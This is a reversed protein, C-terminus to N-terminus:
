RNGDLLVESIMGTRASPRHDQGLRQYAHRTGDLPVSSFAWAWRPSRNEVSGATSSPLKKTMHVAGNLIPHGEPQLPSICAARKDLARQRAEAVGGKRSKERSIESARGWNPTSAGEILPKAMSPINRELVKAIPAKECYIFFASGVLAASLIAVAPAKGNGIPLPHGLSLPERVVVFAKRLTMPPSITGINGL